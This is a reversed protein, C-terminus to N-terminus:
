GQGRDTTTGNSLIKVYKVVEEMMEHNIIKGLVEKPM